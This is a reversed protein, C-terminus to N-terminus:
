KEFYLARVEGDVQPAESHSYEVRLPTGPQVGCVLDTVGGSVEVKKPDAILFTKTAGGMDLIILAREGLCRLESLEGVAFEGVASPLPPPTPAPVSESTAEPMAYYGSRARVSPNGYGKVKVDIKPFTGDLAPNTPTYALLYQNRIEHAIQPTVRQVEALDKPYYDLGGSAEALAKLAGHADRAYRPEEESLLGIRYILVESHQATRVLAEQTPNGDSANDNGDTVVVLVKKDHKGSKKVYDISFSVATRMATRGRSDLRDLATRM